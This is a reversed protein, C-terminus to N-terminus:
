HWKLTRVFLAFCLALLGLWVFSLGAAHVVAVSAGAALVVGIILSLFTPLPM